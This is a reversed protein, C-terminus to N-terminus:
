INKLWPKAKNAIKLINFLQLKVTMIHNKQSDLTQINVLNTKRPFFKLILLSDLKFIYIIFALLIYIVETNLFMLKVSEAVSDVEM